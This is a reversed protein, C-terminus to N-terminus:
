KVGLLRVTRALADDKADSRVVSVHVLDGGLPVDRPATVFFVVNEQALPDLEVHSEALVTTAKKPADIKVDFGERRGLKNVVHIQFGNRVTGDDITFPAGPLRVVNAEFDTRARLALTAAIAGAALMATYLIIRPRVIRRKESALGRPSDYRILGVDRGLRSMVDDCADICATCAICDMQLGERIDIGTPCVVVCRECDVCDGAGKTGKKGRPEGRAKDYGVVLSDDDLLVSQLRGYPCLVVCLQERFFAFNGYLAASIAFVWAFAEPHDAPSHRVMRFVAPVSVFYALVGHAIAISVFVFLAHKAIKRASRGISSAGADRKMHQVRSGEFLREIRRYVGELLVTQPCAWGCWARGLLATVYVLSFGVGSLAFFLLWTDQANLTAGFLFFKRHDIDIFVAPAHGVHIWPLVGAFAILAYIVIKRARAFRGRVDAPVIKKRHGDALISGRVSDDQVVPLHVNSV